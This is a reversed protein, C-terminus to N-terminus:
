FSVPPIEGKFWSIAHQSYQAIVDGLDFIQMYGNTEDKIFPIYNLILIGCFFLCINFVFKNNFDKNVLM